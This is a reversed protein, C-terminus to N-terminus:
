PIRNSAARHRWHVCCRGRWQGDYAAVVNCGTGCGPCVLWPRMGGFHGASVGYRIAVECQVGKHELMVSTMKRFVRPPFQSRLFRLTVRTIEDRYVVAM